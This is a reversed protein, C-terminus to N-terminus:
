HCSINAAFDFDSRSVCLIGPQAPLQDDPLSRLVHVIDDLRPYCDYPITPGSLVKTAAALQGLCNIRAFAGHEAHEDFAPEVVATAFCADVEEAVLVLDLAASGARDAHLNHTEVALAFNDYRIDCTTFQCPFLNTSSRYTTKQAEVIATNV